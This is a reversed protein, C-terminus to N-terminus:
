PGCDHVAARTAFAVSGDRRPVRVVDAPCTIAQTTMCTPGPSTELVSVRLTGDQVAAREVDIVFGGTIREGMTAVLLMEAAFDVTPPTPIPDHGAALEAWASAWEEATRIVRFSPACVGSYFRYYGQAEDPLPLVPVPGGLLPDGGPQEVSAGCALAVSALVLISSRM